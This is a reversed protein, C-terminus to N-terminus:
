TAQEQYCILVNSDEAAVRRNWQQFLGCASDYSYAPIVLGTESMYAHDSAAPGVLPAM